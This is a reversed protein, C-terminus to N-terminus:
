KPRALASLKTHAVIGLISNGLFFLNFWFHATWGLQQLVGGCSCPRQDFYGVLSLAVYVTFLAMLIFSLQLGFLRSKSFILTFAAIIETLPIAWSLVITFNPNFHQAIMQRKFETFAMLKSAATYCWLLVLLFTCCLVVNELIQKRNKM